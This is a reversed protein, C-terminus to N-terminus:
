QFNRLFDVGRVGIFQLFSDSFREEYTHKMGRPILSVARDGKSPAPCYIMQQGPVGDSGRRSM